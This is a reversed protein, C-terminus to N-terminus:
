PVHTLLDRVWSDLTDRNAQTTLNMAHVNFHHQVNGSKDIVFVDDQAAGFAGFASILPDPDDDFCSSTAGDTFWPLLPSSGVHGV